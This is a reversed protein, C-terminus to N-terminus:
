PAEAPVDRRLVPPDAPVRDVRWTVVVIGFAIAAVNLAVLALMALQWRQLLKALTARAHERAGFMVVSEPGTSRITPIGNESGLRGLVVLSDGSAIEAHTIM